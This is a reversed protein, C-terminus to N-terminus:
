LREEFEERLSNMHKEKEKWDKNRLVGFFRILDNKKKFSLIIDSFSQNNAKLSKLFKYAEDKKAINISSM